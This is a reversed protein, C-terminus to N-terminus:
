FYGVASATPFLRSPILAASRRFFREELRTQTAGAPASCASRGTGRSAGHTVRQRWETASHKRREPARGRLDESADPRHRGIKGRQGPPRVTAEVRIIGSPFTRGHK